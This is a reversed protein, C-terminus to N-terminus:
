ASMQSRPVRTLKAKELVATVQSAVMPKHYYYGQLETCGALRLVSAEEATEVGEATVDASLGRAV